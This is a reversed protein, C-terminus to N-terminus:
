IDFKYNVASTEVFHWNDAWYNELSIVDVKAFMMMSTMVYMVLPKYKINILANFCIAQLVTMMSWIYQM